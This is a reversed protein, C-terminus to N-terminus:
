TRADSGGGWTERAKEYVGQDYSFEVTNGDPDKLFCIYGIPDPMQMPGLALCGSEKALAAIEDITEKHPVEIGIHAFPALTPGPHGPQEGLDDAAAPPLEAFVLVFPDGAQGPNSLWAGRGNADENRAVVVLPTMSTYFELTEDLNSCPLAVHTLRPEGLDPAPTDPMPLPEEHVAWAVVAWQGVLHGSGITPGNGVHGTM